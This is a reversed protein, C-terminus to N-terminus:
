QCAHINCHRGPACQADNACANWCVLNGNCAYVGCNHGPGRRCGGMGDCTSDAYKTGNM